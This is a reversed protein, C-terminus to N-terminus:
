KLVDTSLMVYLIGCSLKQLVLHQQYFEFCCCMWVVARCNVGRAQHGMKMYLMSAIYPGFGGVGAMPM